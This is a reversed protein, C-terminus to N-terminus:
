VKLYAKAKEEISMDELENWLSEAEKFKSFMATDLFCINWVLKTPELGSFDSLVSIAEKVKYAEKYNM